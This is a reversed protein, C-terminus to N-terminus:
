DSSGCSGSDCSSGSDYDNSSYSPTYDYSSPTYSTDENDRRKKCVPCTSHVSTDYEEECVSCVAIM